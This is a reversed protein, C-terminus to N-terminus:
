QPVAQVVPAEATVANLFSKAEELAHCSECQSPRHGDGRTGPGHPGTRGAIILRRVLSVLADFQEEGTSEIEALSAREDPM